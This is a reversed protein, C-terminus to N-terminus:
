YIFSGARIRAGEKVEVAGVVVANPYITVNDNIIPYAGKAQGLTVGQFIRCGEGISVGGGIVISVPHPLSVGRGIEFGRGVDISHFTILLNRPIWFLWAPSRQALRLLIQARISPNYITAALGRFTGPYSIDLDSKILALLGFRLNIGPVRTM